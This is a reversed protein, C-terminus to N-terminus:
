SQGGGLAVDCPQLRPDRARSGPSHREDFLSTDPNPRRWRVHAQRPDAGWERRRAGRVHVRRERRHGPRQECPSREVDRRRWGEIVRGRKAAREPGLVGLGLQPSAGDLSGSVCAGRTRLSLHLRAAEAQAGRRKERRKRAECHGERRRRPAPRRTTVARSTPARARDAESPATQGLETERAM